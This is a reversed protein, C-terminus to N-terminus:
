YMMEASCKGDLVVPVYRVIVAEEARKDDRWHWYEAFHVTEGELYDAETRRFRRWHDPAERRGM